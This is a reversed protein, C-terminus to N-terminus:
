LQVILGSTLVYNNIGRNPSKLGANSIHRFGTRVDLYVGTEIKINIGVLLNDSFIFGDAQHPLAKSVYHPGSSFSIYTNLVGKIIYKRLLVGMNVGFEHGKLINQSEASYSLETTNYQPQFIIELNMTKGSYLTRYYEIQFFYVQYNYKEKLGFGTAFGIKHKSELGLEISNQAMAGGIWVSILSLRVFFIILLKM